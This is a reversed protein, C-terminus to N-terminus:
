FMPWRGAVRTGPDNSFNHSRQAWCPLPSWQFLIPYPITMKKLPVHFSMISDDLGLLAAVQTVTPPQLLVPDKKIREFLILLFQLRTRYPSHNAFPWPQHCLGDGGGKEAQGTSQMGTDIKGENAVLRERALLLYLCHRPSENQLRGVLVLISHLLFPASYLPLAKPSAKEKKRIRRQNNRNTYTSNGREM